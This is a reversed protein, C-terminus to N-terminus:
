VPVKLMSAPDFRENQNVGAWESTKYNIVYISMDEVMNQSIRNSIFNKIIKELNKDENLASGDLNCLLLPNILSYDNQKLRLNAMIPFSRLHSSLIFGASFFVISCVIFLINKSRSSMDKNPGSTAPFIM